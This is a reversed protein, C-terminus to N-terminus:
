RFRLSRLSHISVSVFCVFVMDQKCLDILKNRVLSSGVIDHSSQPPNQSAHSQIMPLIFTVCNINRREEKSLQLPLSPKFPVVQVVEITNLNFVNDYFGLVIVSYSTFTIM